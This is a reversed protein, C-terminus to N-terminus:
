EPANARIPDPQRGDSDDSESSFRSFPLFDAAKFFASAAFYEKNNCFNASILSFFCHSYVFIHINASLM